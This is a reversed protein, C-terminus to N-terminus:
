GDDDIQNDKVMKLFLILAGIVNELAFNFDPLFKYKTLHIERM